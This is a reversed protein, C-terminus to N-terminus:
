NQLFTSKVGDLRRNSEANSFYAESTPCEQGVRLRISPCDASPPGDELSLLGSALSRSPSNQM